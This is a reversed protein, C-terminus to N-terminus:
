GSLGLAVDLTYVHELVIHLLGEFGSESERLTRISEGEFLTVREFGFGFGEFCLSDLMAIFNCFLSGSLTVGVGPSLRIPPLLGNSYVSM